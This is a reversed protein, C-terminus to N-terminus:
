YVVLITEIPTTSWKGRSWQKAAILDTQQDQGLPTGSFYSDM